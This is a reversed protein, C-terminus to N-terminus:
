DGALLGNSIFCPNHITTSVITTDLGFKLRREQQLWLRILKEWLGGAEVKLVADLRNNQHFWSPLDSRDIQYDPIIRPAFRSNGRRNAAISSEEPPPQPLPLAVESALSTDFFSADTEAPITLFGELSQQSSPIISDDPVATSTDPPVIASSATPTPEVLSDPEESLEYGSGGLTLVIDPAGEISDRRARDAATTNGQDRIKYTNGGTLM